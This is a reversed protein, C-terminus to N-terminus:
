SRSIKYHGDDTSDALWYLFAAAPPFGSSTPARDEDLRSLATRTFRLPGVALGLDEPTKASSPMIRGSNIRGPGPPARSGSASTPEVNPLPGAAPLSVTSTARIPVARMVPPSYNVSGRPQPVLWRCAPEVRIAAVDLVQVFARQVEGQCCAAPVAFPGPVTAHAVARLIFFAVFPLMRVM